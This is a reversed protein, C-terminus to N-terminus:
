NRNLFDPPVSYYGYVEKEIERLQEIYGIIPHIEPRKEKVFAYAYYLSKISENLSENRKMLWAIVLTPSRNQGLNCHVLLKGIRVAEDMFSFSKEIIDELESFGDDRMPAIMLKRDPVYHQNGSSVM